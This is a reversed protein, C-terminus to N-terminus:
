AHKARAQLSEARTILEGERCGWCRMAGVTLLIFLTFSIISIVPKVAISISFEFYYIGM